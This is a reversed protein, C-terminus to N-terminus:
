NQSHDFPTVQDLDVEVGEPAQIVVKSVVDIFVLDQDNSAGVMDIKSESYPIPEGNATCTIGCNKHDIDQSYPCNANCRYMTYRTFSKDSPKKAVEQDQDQANSNEVPQNNSSDAIANEDDSNELAEPRTQEFTPQEDKFPVPSSPQENKPPTVIVDQKGVTLDDDGSGLDSKMSPVYDNGSGQGFDVVAGSVTDKYEVGTYIKKFNVGLDKSYPVDKGNSTCSIECGTIKGYNNQQCSTECKNVIKTNAQNKRNNIEDENAQFQDETNFLFDNTISDRYSFGARPNVTVGLDESYPVDKGNSSCKLFCNKSMGVKTMPCSTYCKNNIQEPKVQYSTQGNQNSPSSGSLKLPAKQGVTGFLFQQNVQDQYAYGPKQTITVGLDDSFAIPKGNATCSVKCINGLNYGLIPCRTSCKYNISEVQKPNVFKPSVSNSSSSSSSSSSSGSPSIKLDDSSSNNNQQQVAQPQAQAQAERLIKGDYADKVSNIAPVKHLLDVGTIQYPVTMVDNMKCTM